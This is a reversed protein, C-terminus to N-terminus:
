PAVAKRMLEARLEKKTHSVRHWLHDQLRSKLDRCSGKYLYTGGGCRILYAAPRGGAREIAAKLEVDAERFRAMTGSTPTSGM